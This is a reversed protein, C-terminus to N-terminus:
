ELSQLVSPCTRIYPRALHKVSNGHDFNVAANEANYYLNNPSSNTVRDSTCTSM